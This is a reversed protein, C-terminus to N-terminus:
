ALIDVEQQRPPFNINNLFRRQFDKDEALSVYHVEQAIESAKSWKEDQLLALIAGKAAANGINEFKKIPASPIMGLIMMNEARLFSGFVGALYIKDLDNVTIKAKDLLIDVATRVAARALQIQRIDEQDLTITSGEGSSLVLSDGRSGNEITLVTKAKETFQGEQDLYAQELLVALLDLVASGCLGRAPGDGLIDFSFNEEQSFRVHHIAGEAARMGCRIGGGEFAPGAAASATWFTGKYALVIEGNTGIDLLLYNHESIDPVTLLCATTDAGVFGGLQPLVFVPAVPNVNLGLQRAQCSIARSFIGTYPALGLSSVEFGWLLHLMVPNGVVMVKCISDQEQECESLMTEIMTNINNVIIRQMLELGEPHELTYSIRTLVDDGYVRQMNTHDALALDEGSELDYLAAFLSTSGLDVALGLLSPRYRKIQVVRKRDVILAYLEIAPRGPRDLRALENINSVQIDLEYDKLAIAVREYFPVPDQTDLGPIFFKKYEAVQQAPPIQWARSALKKSEIERGASLYVKCDGELKCFCALRQGNRLEDPMLYKHEEEHPQNVPGEIRVSCKGCIGQGGCSGNAYGHVELIEHLNSGKLARLNKEEGDTEFITIRIQESM